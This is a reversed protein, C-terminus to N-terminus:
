NSRLMLSSLGIKPEPLPMIVMTETPAAAPIAAPSGGTEHAGYSGIDSLWSPESCDVLKHKKPIRSVPAKECSCLSISISNVANRDGKPATANVKSTTTVCQDNSVHSDEDSTRM